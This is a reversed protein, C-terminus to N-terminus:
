EEAFVHRIFLKNYLTNVIQSPYEAFKASVAAAKQM